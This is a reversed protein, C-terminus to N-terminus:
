FQLGKIKIVGICLTANNHNTILENAIEIYVSVVPVPKRQTMKGKLAGIDPGFIKEAISVNDVTVPLNRIQNPMFITKFDQLSPTGLV